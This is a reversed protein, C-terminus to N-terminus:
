PNNMDIEFSRLKGKYIPFSKQTEIAIEANPTEYPINNEL